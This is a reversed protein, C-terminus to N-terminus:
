LAKNLSCLSESCYYQLLVTFFHIFIFYFSRWHLEKYLMNNHGMFTKFGVTTSFCCECAECTWDLWLQILTSETDGTHLLPAIWSLHQRSLCIGGSLGVIYTPLAWDPTGDPTHTQILTTSVWSSRSMPTRGGKYSPQSLPFNVGCLFMISM